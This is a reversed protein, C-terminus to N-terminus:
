FPIKQIDHLVVYVWYLIFLAIHVIGHGKTLTLRGMRLCVLTFILIGGLIFGTTGIDYTDVEIKAGIFLLELFWPLGLGFLIDFINSGFVNSVAMSGKGKKAVIISVMMDPVSTGAACVTLGMIAPSINLICGVKEAWVIMAYVLFGIWVLSALMTLPWRSKRAKRRCDPITIWYVFRMPAEIYFLIKGYVNTNPPLCMHKEFSERYNSGWNIRDLESELNFTETDTTVSPQALPEPLDTHATVGSENSGDEITPLEIEEEESEMLIPAAMDAMGFYALVPKIRSNIVRSKMCIVIYLLYTSLLLSAEFLSINGDSFVILFEILTITYVFVDRLIAFGSVELKQNPAYMICAGIILLMNFVCSGIVTGTGVSNEEAIFVGIAAAIVEPSSSGAAMLTAGAVDDRMGTARIVEEAASVFYIEVVVSLSLFIYLMGIFYIIVSAFELSDLPDAWSKSLCMDSGPGRPPLNDSEGEIMLIRKEENVIDGPAHFTNSSSSILM